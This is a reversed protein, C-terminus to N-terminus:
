RRKDNANKNEKLALARLGAKLMRIDVPDQDLLGGPRPLVHLTRCLDVLEITQIVDEENQRRNLVV